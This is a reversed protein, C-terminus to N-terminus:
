HIVSNLHNSLINEPVCFYTVSIAPNYGDTKPHPFIKRTRYCYDDMVKYGGKEACSKWSLRQSVGKRDISPRLGQGSIAHVYRFGAHYTNWATAILDDNALGTEETFILIIGASCYKSFIEIMSQDSQKRVEHFGNGVLMVAGETSYGFEAIKDILTHPKGIDSNGIFKMNRPLNGISQESKAAEIAENELDAGFYQVESEGSLEFRQRTAEGHGVAHEIFVDFRYNYDACFQDLKENARAFTNENADRSAAVNEGRAVWVRGEQGKLLSLHHEMYKHYAHIIGIPGPGKTFVRNCLEQQKKNKYFGIASLFEMVKINKEAAQIGMKRIALVLPALRFGVEIEYQNAVWNTRNEYSFCPIQFFHELDDSWKNKELADMILHCKENRMEPHMPTMHKICDIVQLEKSPLFLNDKQLLYKRSVLFALDSALFKENLNLVSAIEKLSASGHAALFKFTGIELHSSLIHRLLWLDSPSTVAATRVVTEIVRIANKNSNTLKPEAKIKSLEDLIKQGHSFLHPVKSLFLDFSQQSLIPYGEANLETKGNIIERLIAQM